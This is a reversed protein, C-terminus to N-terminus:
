WKAVMYLNLMMNLWHIRHYSHVFTPPVDIIAQVFETDIKDCTM